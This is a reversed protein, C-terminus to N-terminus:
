RSDVYRGVRVGGAAVQGDLLTENQDAAMDRFLRIFSSAGGSFADSLSWRLVIGWGSLDYPARNPPGPQPPRTVLPSCNDSWESVGGVGDDRARIAVAFAMNPRVPSNDPLRDLEYPRQVSNLGEMGNVRLDYHTVGNVVSWSIILRDHQRDVPSQLFPPSPKDPRTAVAAPDSWPGAGLAVSVGRVLVQLVQNASLGGLYGGRPVNQRVDAAGFRIDYTDADAVDVWSLRLSNARRSDERETDTAGFLFPPAPKQPVPM